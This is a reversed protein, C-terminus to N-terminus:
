WNSQRLKKMEAIMIIATYHVRKMRKSLKFQLFWTCAHKNSHIKTTWTAIWLIKLALSQHFSESTSHRIHIKIHKHQLTMIFLIGSFILICCLWGDEGSTGLSMYIPLYAHQINKKCLNLFLLLLFSLSLFLSWSLFPCIYLFYIMLKAVCFSIHIHYYFFLCTFLNCFSYLSLTLNTCLIYSIYM